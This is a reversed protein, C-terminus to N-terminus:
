TVSNNAASLPRLFTETIEGMVELNYLYRVIDIMRQHVSLERGLVPLRFELGELEVCALINIWGGVRARWGDVCRGGKDEIVRRYTRCHM